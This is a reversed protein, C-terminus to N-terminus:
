YFDKSLHRFFLVTVLMSIGLTVMGVASAYGMSYFEFAEKYITIALTQTAGAPGGATMIHIIGFERFAWLSSIVMGVAIVSRLAPLTVHRFQQFVNAGDVRAAEYLEGPIAQLGAILMITFFPYGKWATALIVALLAPGPSTFWHIPQAILNAMLLLYNIVGFASNFMWSFTLAAIVGPVPWPLVVLLRAWRRGKFKQNLLLATGLGVLFSLGTSFFVYYASITLSEWFYPSTFMEIYNAFSPDAKIRGLNGMLGIPYLSVRAAVFIPYLIVLMVTIAAPAILAFAFLRKGAASQPVM